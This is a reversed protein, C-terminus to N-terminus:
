HEHWGHAGQRQTCGNIAGQLSVTLMDSLRQALLTRLSVGLAGQHAAVGNGPASRGRVSEQGGCLLGHIPRIIRTQARQM